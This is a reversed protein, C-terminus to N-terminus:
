TRRNGYNQRAPTRRDAIADFLLRYDVAFVLVVEKFEAVLRTAEVVNWVNPRSCRDLDDIVVM